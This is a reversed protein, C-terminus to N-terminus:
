AGIGLIYTRIVHAVGHETNTLTVADAAEKVADQANGMAVGFGAARIMEIDNLSDGVAVIESMQIGLLRCVENLGRAKSIGEPNVEINYPHSNTPECGGWDLLQQRIAALAELSGSSYGCKMWEHAEVRDTWNEIDYTGDVAHAYFRADYKLALAHMRSVDDANFLHRKHLEGPRLWLEGGNVAVIPSDLQLEEAFPLLGEYGRGTALCVTVGAERAKAIWERNETSIKQEHNLLTGDMDLALLRYKAMEWNEGTVNSGM